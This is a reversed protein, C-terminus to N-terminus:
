RQFARLYSDHNNDIKIDPMATVFLQFGFGRNSGIPVWYISGSWCHLNRVIRVSNHITKNDDIDYDQTYTLATTPTLNFNLNFRFFSFKRFFAGSGSESYGYSASFLWGRSTSINSQTYGPDSKALQDPSDAGRAIKIDSPDDFIFSRGSLSFRADVSFSELHPSWFDAEDTGPKYLSHIMNGSFTIKPIASSQFSTNLDSYPRIDEELNYSFSSNVSIVDISKEEEGKRYKAQVLQNLTVGISQSKVSGAGGGVYSRETPFRNIEPSYSYSVQPTLTHRVGTVGMVNPYFTGYFDTRATVSTSYSYTRYSKARIGLSDSQDTQIVNFWTESYRFAPTLKVYRFLSMTPLGISPNHDLRMYKKRSRQGTSDSVRSSSNLFSPTYRFTFGNYWKQTKQGDKGTSSSGFPWVTPFSLSMQPLQNSRRGEDYNEIHNIAGSASLGNGFKKNFNLQSKAERNLREDRNISYDDFYTADSRFDASGRISFSPSFTHSYAASSIWRTSKNEAATTRDYSTARAYSGSVYGSLVYRKTFNIRSNMTITRQREIYDLSNQWDWFDSAAWYYGVNKVYRDGQQFNGFTFPLMGSHRGRELPFIYYPLAFLPIRGLYFVVPKAILKDNEILKLNNSYFHFHPENADCSTYRGDDIYFIHPKERYLKEGYYYGENYSTKSQFIRGKKSDISYVLYDGLIQDDKDALIVPVSNPQLMYPSEHALGSDQAGQASYAEIIRLDTDFLVQHATLSVTGSKIDAAQRLTILSDDLSYDIYQGKYDVTDIPVGSGPERASIPASVYKGISGGVVQVETLREEQTLFKITDGSVTNERFMTDGRSSPYYWSYAQNYAIISSLESEVFHFHIERGTLISQDIFASDKGVPENFEARASDIVNISEISSENFLVTILKGNVKSHRRTAEPNITLELSDNKTDFFAQGSNATMDKSTIVVNGFADARNDASRYEITDALVEIMKASDPYQLYLLPRNYMKLFNNRRDFFAHTGVAYISDVFSWLEVRKGLATAERTGINYFLSDSKIQFDRDDLRVNGKLRAAKGKDWVASDCRIQGTETEFVVNGTVHTIYRGNELVVELQKSQKLVLERKEQSRVSAASILLVISLTLFLILECKM